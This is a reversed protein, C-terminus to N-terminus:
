FDIISSFYDPLQTLLALYDEIDGKTRLPYEALLISLQAQIGLSPGLPEDYLVLSSADLETNLYDLFIDYTLQQSASM